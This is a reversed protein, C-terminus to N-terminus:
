QATLARIRGEALRQSSTSSTAANTPEKVQRYNALAEDRLGLQEAIRGLVYYDSPVPRGGNDDIAEALTAGAESLQNREAQLAALTHLTGHSRRKSIEVARRADDLAQDSVPPAFLTIWALENFDSANAKGLEVLRRRSRAFDAWRLQLEAAQALARLGQPDDPMAALRAGALRRLDDPRHLDILARVRLGFLTSSRGTQLALQEALALAETPQKMVLRANILAIDIASAPVGAPLASRAATLRDIAEQTDTPSRGIVLMTAAIRLVEASGDNGEWVRLFPSQALPDHDDNHRAGDAVWDLLRTAAVLDRDDLFHLARRGLPAMDNPLALVRYHGGQRVVYWSSTDNNLPSTRRIRYGVREDGEKDFTAIAFGDRVLLLPSGDGRWSQRARLLDDIRGENLISGEGAVLPGLRRGLSADEGDFLEADFHRLASVPDHDDIPVTEAPRLRRALEARSRVWPEAGPQRALREYLTAATAYQQTSWLMGAVEQTLQPREDAPRADIAALAAEAGDLVAVATLRLMLPQGASVGALLPLLEKWRHAYALAFWLEGALPQQGLETPHARLIAIAKDLPLGRAYKDGDGNVTSLESLYAAAQAASPNLQLARKLEDSAAARDSGAHLKRGFADHMLTWGHDGHADASSPALEVARQAEDRAAQGLRAQELLIALQLHHLAEQPHLSILKRLEDLAERVRGAQLRTHAVFPCTVTFAGSQDAERLAALTAQIVSAGYGGGPVELHLDVTVAGSKDVAFRRDMHLAGLPLDGSPPLSPCAFGPPVIIRTHLEVQAAASGWPASSWSPQTPGLPQQFMNGSLLPVTAEADVSLGASPSVLEWSLAFPDDRRDPDGITVHVPGVTHRNEALMRALVDSLKQRDAAAVVARFARDFAGYVRVSEALHAPGAEALRVERNVVIRAVEPRAAPTKTLARTGASAVLALRDADMAPLSDLDLPDAGPDVWLPRDGPVFVIVHDFQSIGPLAEEVPAGSGAHLLALQATVGASRLLATLLLARDKCDGYKRQLTQAPTHPVISSNGLWVGTYRVERRVFAALATVTARVGSKAVGALAAKATRDLESSDAHVLQAEAIRAYDAAVDNWSRAVSVALQPWEDISFRGSRLQLPASPGLAFSMTVTGNAQRRTPILPARNRVLWHLPLTEPAEVTVAIRETPWPAALLALHMMGGAILPARDRTVVETEVVAGVALAPLPARLVRRDTYSESSQPPAAEEITAPDLVHAVGDSTIVRAHLEPRDQYWADWDASISEGAEVAAVTLLRYVERQRHELSGDAGFRYHQEYLLIQRSVGAPPALAHAAAAVREPAAAMAAAQWPPPEAALALSPLWLMVVIGWARM